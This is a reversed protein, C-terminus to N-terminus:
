SGTRLKLTVVDSSLNPIDVLQGKIYNYLFLTNLNDDAPALSSSLYFNLADDTRNDNWRAEIIPRKLFYQSDRAFFKKTYYSTEAAELSATLFVGFGFNGTNNNLWEEVHQTVDVELDEIGTSFFQSSTNSQSATHFSGGQIEGLHDEWVTQYSANIWNSGSPDADSYDEMDLGIGEQGRDHSPFM